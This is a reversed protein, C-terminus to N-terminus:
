TTQSIIRILDTLSKSSLKLAISIHSAGHLPQSMYICLHGSAIYVVCSWVFPLTFM